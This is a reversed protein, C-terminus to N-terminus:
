SCKGSYYGADPRITIVTESTSAGSPNSAKLTYITTIVPQVIISGFDGEITQPQGNEGEITISDADDVNWVLEVAVGASVRQPMANFVIITPPKSAPPPIIVALSLTMRSTGNKNTAIITYDTSQGPIVQASGSAPLDGSGPEISVTEANSIDWSLLASEGANIGPPNVSFSKIIPPLKSAAAEPNMVTCASVTLFLSLLFSLFIKTKL